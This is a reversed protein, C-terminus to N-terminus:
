LLSKRVDMEVEEEKKALEKRGVRHADKSEEWRLKEEPRKESMRRIDKDTILRTWNVANAFADVQDDYKSYPFSCTEALFAPIWNGRVMTIMKHSALDMSYEANKIKDKNVGKSLVRFGRSLLERKLDKLIIVDKGVEEFGITVDRGDTLATKVIFERAEPWDFQDRKVDELFRQLSLGISVLAGATFDGDKKVAWDWWRVRAREPPLQYESIVESFWDRKYKAGEPPVPNGQYLTQFKQEQLTARLRELEELPYRGTDLAEGKKRFSDDEMAIAPFNIFHYQDSKPDVEMLTKIRGIIDDEHWRTFLLLIKANPDLRTRMTGTFWDWAKERIIDSQAEEWSKYPDDVILLDAGQGTIPGSVGAAIYSPKAAGNIHWIEKSLKGPLVIGPFIKKYEQTRMRDQVNESFTFALKSGYAIGMVGKQPNNGIFFAPLSRSCIESKSHRPPMSIALRDFPSSDQLFTCIVDCVARAHASHSWVGGKFTAVTFDYLSSKAGALLRDAQVRQLLAKREALMNELFPRNGAVKDAIQVGPLQNHIDTLSWKVLGCGLKSQGLKSWQVKENQM